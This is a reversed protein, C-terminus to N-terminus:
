LSKQHNQHQNKNTAETLNNSNSPKQSQIDLDVKLIKWAEDIHKKGVFRAVDNANGNQTDEKNMDLSFHGNDFLKHITLFTEVDTNRYVDGVKMHIHREIPYIYEENLELYIKKVM